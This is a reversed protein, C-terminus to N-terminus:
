KGLAFWRFATGSAAATGPSTASWVKMQAPSILQTGHFATPPGNGAANCAIACLCGDTFPVPFIVAQGGTADSHSGSGWQLKFGTLRHFLYGNALESFDIEFITELATLLQTHNSKSPALSAASLINLLEMMLMNMFEAPLVTAAQGGVPDGDGFFGPAGAATSAPLEPLASAVDIQYM